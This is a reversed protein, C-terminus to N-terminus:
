KALTVNGAAIATANHSADWLMSQVALPWGNLYVWINCAVLVALVCTSYVWYEADFLGKFTRVAHGIGFFIGCLLDKISLVVFRSAHFLRDRIQVLIPFKALLEQITHQFRVVVRVMWGYIRTAFYAFEYLSNGTTVFWFSPRLMTGLPLSVGCAECLTLGLIVVLVGIIFLVVQHGVNEGTSIFGLGMQMGFTYFAHFISGLVDYADGFLPRVYQHLKRLLWMPNFWLSLWEFADYIYPAVADVLSNILEAPAYKPPLGTVRIVTQWSIALALSILLVRGMTKAVSSPTKSTWSPRLREEKAAATAAIAAKISASSAQDTALLAAAKVADKAADEAESPSDDFNSDDYDGVAASAAGGSAASVPHKHDQM